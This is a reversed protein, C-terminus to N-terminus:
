PSVARACRFGFNFLTYSPTNNFRNAVRVIQLTGYWSGGRLIRSSKVNTYNQIVDTIDAGAIPNRVPSGSYFSKDYEDLCWEWVNGAMDYLGYGNAAYSGVPTTDGVNRGYNAKNADIANGWPYKQGKLGGRAAKEWEAETPLRKGAWEAYAMAAYWSVDVVPHDAEGAPYNNGNWLKLYSGNHFRKNIRDKRWEPNADVFRKYQANTVEYKDMYFADVYVTHVPKEDNDGDNSGMQFEGAPILVMTSGDRGTFTKPLEKKKLEFEWSFPTGRRVRFKEVKPEYGDVEVKVEIEKASQGDTELQYDKLPTKGVTFGDIEVKAGSPTSTFNLTTTSLTPTPVQPSVNGGSGQKRKPLAHAVPEQTKQGKEVLQEVMETGFAAKEYLETTHAKTKEFTEQWSLFGDRDTDAEVTFGQSLLAVTFYGGLDTNGIAFQGPSAATIDLLGTHELFLNKMYPRAKARVGVSFKAFTDKPMDQSLNSCTDTILMRLRAPKQKLKNSLKDRDLGDSRLTHEFLLKHTGFTGIEGHGNYYILITDEPNPKLNELWAAVQRSHIIDIQAEVTANQARGRFFTKRSVVAADVATSHMLTLHVKADYSLQRIMETMKDKNKAVADKINNDSDNGLIILLAHVEQADAPFPAGISATVCIILLFGLVSLLQKRFM